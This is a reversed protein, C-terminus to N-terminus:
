VIMWRIIFYSLVSLIVFLLTAMVLSNAGKKSVQKFDVSLGMATMAMLIFFKSATALYGTIVQPIINVSNVIGAVIFLLVYMPFAAKQKSEGKSFHYGLFVSVPVLMLVRTMKVITGVEGSVEGRALAGALAHAVGHLTLGSWIGYQVDTVASLQGVLSYVIVGIAGLVSVISVAVVADDDDAGIVPSLAVVASAGCICSGVGMLTALKKNVKFRKNLLMFLLLTLPVYILVLMIINPGLAFVASLNLKFGLLVIGVKLLKKLSYKIGDKFMEQTKITNNYIMGIIIAITLTELQFYVKVQERLFMSLLAIATVFLLGPILKLKKMFAEWVQRM